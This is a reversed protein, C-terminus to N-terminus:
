IIKIYTHVYIYYMSGQHSLPLSDVQWHLLHLNSVQTPFIGRSFSIAVWKLIRAQSVGCVSSDPPNCDIPDCLIM